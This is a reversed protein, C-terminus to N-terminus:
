KDKNILFVLFVLVVLVGLSFFVGGCNIFIFFLWLFKNYLVNYEVIM